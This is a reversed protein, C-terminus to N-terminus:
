ILMNHGNTLSDSGEVEADFQKEEENAAADAPGLEDELDDPPLRPSCGYQAASYGVGHMYAPTDGEGDSDLDIIEPSEERSSIEEVEDEEAEPSVPGRRGNPTWQGAQDRADYVDREVDVGFGEGEQREAYDEYEEEGQVSENDYEDGDVESGSGSDSLLEIPNQPAGLGPGERPDKAKGKARRSQIDAFSDEFSQDQFTEDSAAYVDQSQPEDLVVDEETEDGLARRLAGTIGSIWQDFEPKTFKDYPNHIPRRLSKPNTSVPTTHPAPLISFPSRWSTSM